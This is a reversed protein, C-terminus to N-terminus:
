NFLLSVYYLFIKSYFERLLIRDRRYFASSIIKPLIVEETYFTTNALNYVFGRFVPNSLESEKTIWQTLVFGSPQPGGDSGSAQRPIKIM